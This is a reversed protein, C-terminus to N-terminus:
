SQSISTGRAALLTASGDQTGFMWDYESVHRVDNCYDRLAMLVFAGEACLFMGLYLLQLEVPDPIVVEQSLSGLAQARTIPRDSKALAQLTSELTGAYAIYCGVSGFILVSPLLNFIWRFGHTINGLAITRRVYFIWALLLFGLVGAITALPKRQSEYTPLVNMATLIPALAATVIPMIGMYGKFVNAFLSLRNEQAAQIVTAM